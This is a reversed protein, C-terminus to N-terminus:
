FYFNYKNFETDLRVKQNCKRVSRYKEKYIINKIIEFARQFCTKKLLM